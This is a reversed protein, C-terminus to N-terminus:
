QETGNMRQRVPRTHGCRIGQFRSREADGGDIQASEGHSHDHRRRDSCRGQRGQSVGMGPVGAPDMPPSSYDAIGRDLRSTLEEAKAMDRERVTGIGTPIEGVTVASLSLRDASAGGIRNLVGKHPKPCGLESIINADLPYM